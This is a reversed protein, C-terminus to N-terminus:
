LKLMIVKRFFFMVVTQRLAVWQQTVKLIRGILWAGQSGNHTFMADDVFGSACYHIAIDDSSSLANAVPLM